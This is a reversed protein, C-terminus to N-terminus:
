RRCRSSTWNRRGAARASELVMTAPPLWVTVCPPEALKSMTEAPPLENMWAPPVSLALVIPLPPLRNTEPVPATADLSVNM